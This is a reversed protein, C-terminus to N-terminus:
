NIKGTAIERGEDLILAIAEAGNKTVKKMVEIEPKKFESVIFDLLISEGKPKKTKGSSTIPCIGVRLRAFARTKLAKIISEVGKHGGSSRNFSIKMSGLPLDLDDYVVITREADKANKVLPAVSKGSVNMFNDPLLLVVKDKGWSGKSVLAKLSKDNIWEPFDNKKRFAEMVMRGANHRTNEYEEGPNGLGVILYQM